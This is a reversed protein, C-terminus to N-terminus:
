EFIQLDLRILVEGQDVEYLRLQKTIPGHSERTEQAIDWVRVETRGLFDNPSFLEKNFVTVCLVDQRLDRVLFQMSTNWQPSTTSSVVHTKHEQSAMNVECYSDIQGPRDMSVLDCAQMVVVRLKGEAPRRHVSVKMQKAETNRYNHAADKIKKVWLLKENPNAARFVCIYDPASIQFTDDTPSGDSTDQVMVTNLFLPQKYLRYATNMARDSMFVNTVRGLDRVPQALLLFDNFLFGVLEKGSKVKTLSGSHLFKRSGLVNTTSNFVLKESIGNCQIHTQAWELHDSNEREKVAENIQNCLQEAKELAEDLYGRDHHTPDTYERIKKIMLPYKTMRQMPKLLFSTFPMGRTKPNKCFDRTFSKFRPDSESKQQIFAMSRVQCSCFRVYPNLYPLNECLIDGIMEIIGNESMRQRVRFSKLMKTNCMILEPWNVFILKVEDDTLLTSQKMPRYFVEKVLTLDKLYNEETSLLEYIHGQRKKERTSLSSSFLIDQLGSCKDARDLPEVYNSPFLGVHGGLEGKWWSPDEKSLVTVVQGKQFSLEDEHQAVFPFLARVQEGQTSSAFATPVPSSRSSSAGSGGLVKVYSAPFWGSQRKKGKVQLEGEWWGGETKKRVQILQGKELTLQEPGTAKYPAIVSAIEPKKTLKMNKAKADSQPTDPRSPEQGSLGVEENTPLTTASPILDESISNKKGKNNVEPECPRVYNSPFIGTMGGITGTWWEGEKKNVILVDGALFSLDGPEQSQYPYVAVYRESVVPFDSPPEPPLDGFEQSDSIQNNNFSKMPGSVLRVYSKPFWGVKGEFDGYWWMDQQEKVTIVDGKNFSLHNEKKARWPFLAQAQLGQPAAQGEGPVPSTTDMPPVRPLQTFCSNESPQLVDPAAALEVAHERGNEPAESIGELTRKMETGVIHVTEAATLVDAAAAVAEDPVEAFAGPPTSVLKEVYSEPFWGTKGRLEGGLWGPEGHQNEQVMVIDGPMISLEDENRAEFAYLARYKVLGTSTTTQQVGDGPWSDVPAFESQDNWADVSAVNGRQKKLAMVQQKKQTFEQLLLENQQVLESLKEKLEKLQANNNNVDQQKTETEKEINSLTTRLMNLSIEKSGYNNMALSYTNNSGGAAMKLRGQHSLKEQNLLLMKDSIEKLELKTENLEKMKADRELRMEDICAKMEAVSKKTDALKLNSENIKNEMQELQLFISTKHAKLRSMNEQERQKQSLLEQMRQKEWELQRQREMERRAAERQELAKRRQEEKEQELERQRALQKELELQRRREQEQRIRERKEQEERDKREREQQEKRQSELLAQRRKELEAQGKEFNARRKDEFTALSRLKEEEARAEGAPGSLETGSSGTSQVSDSRQRRYSPPILDLPLKAPLTDGARVCDVLHMALVFEECTLRGDSDIDSLNWIQALVTHPLASQLLITRAQGGGLFGSRSRDHSNFLQTYKLKSPQPVAWETLAPPTANGPAYPKGAGVAGPIVGLPAVHPGVMSPPPLPSAVPFAAGPLATNVLPQAVPSVVQELPPGFTPSFAGTPFPPSRLSSPLMAPLELGKLKMQILHLAVAFEHRNIKGDADMDALSWVKALVAPPLGSQLFLKKAQEGTILGGVPQMQLFQADFKARSDPPITWPDFGAM